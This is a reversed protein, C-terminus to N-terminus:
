CIWFVNAIQKWSLSSHLRKSVTSKAKIAAIATSKTEQHCVRALLM